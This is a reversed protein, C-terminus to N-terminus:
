VCWGISGAIGADGHAANLVEPSRIGAHEMVACNRSGAGQSGSTHPRHIRYTVLYPVPKKIGTVEAVSRLATRPRNILPLESEDLIFDNMTYVDELMESDTICRVGGTARTPDLERALANPAQLYSITTTPSENIRM